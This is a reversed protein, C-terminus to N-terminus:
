AEGGSVAALGVPAGRVAKFEDAHALTTADAGCDFLGKKPDWKGLQVLSFDEPHRYMVTREDQVLDQFARLAEGMTRMFFPVNFTESKRDFVAFICMEM